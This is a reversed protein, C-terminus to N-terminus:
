RRRIGPPAASPWRAPRVASWAVLGLAVAATALGFLRPDFWSGQVPFLQWALNSVAHYLVMGVLSRGSRSYLQTMVVRASVTWLTWWAIWSADRGVQVLAPYHWIAWAAGLAVGAPLLGWRAQLPELAYGTWGLEEAVASVLFLATLALISPMAFRPEPIPAGTARLFLFVAVAILPSTLVLAAVWGPHRLRGVDVARRLLAGVADAGDERWTLIMAALAPCIVMVASAPLGPLIQGGLLGGLLWFPLSLAFVLAFFVLPAHRLPM